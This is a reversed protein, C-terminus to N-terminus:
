YSRTTQGTAPAVTGSPTPVRTEPNNWIPKGLNVDKPSTTAGTIAGAGGGVVGGVVAGVPGGLLGIGAGTAAGTAAGGSVRDSQNTGCAVLLSLAGWLTATTIAKM